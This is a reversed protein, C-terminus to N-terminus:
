VQYDWLFDPTQKLKKFIICDKKYINLENILFSLLCTFLCNRM